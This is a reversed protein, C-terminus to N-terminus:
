NPIIKKMISSLIPSLNNFHFKIKKKRLEAREKENLGADEPIHIVKKIYNAFEGKDGM